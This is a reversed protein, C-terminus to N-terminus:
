TTEAPPLGADTRIQDFLDNIINTLQTRFIAVLAIVAIIVLIIAVINSAGNEGYLFEDVRNKASLYAKMFFNKM